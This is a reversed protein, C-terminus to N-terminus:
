IDLEVDKAHAQIFSKRSAVDTGMLTDFIKDTELADEITVQKLIRTAPNMTTEWLEDSNMEGLGKYRQITAKKAKKAKPDKESAEEGEENEADEIDQVDTEKVGLEKLIKFKIIWM